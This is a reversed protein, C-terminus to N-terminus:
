NSPELIEMYNDPHWYPPKCAGYFRRAGIIMKDEILPITRMLLKQEGQKVFVSYDEEMEDYELGGVVGYGINRLKGIAPVGKLLKNVEIRDGRFYYVVKPVVMCKVPVFRMKYPGSAILLSKRESEKLLLSMKDCEFRKAQHEHYEHEIKYIPNSCRFVDVGAITIRSLPLCGCKKVQKLSVGRTVREAHNLSMRFMIEYMLLADLAPPAVALPSVLNITLRWNNLM